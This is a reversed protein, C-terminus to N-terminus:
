SNLSLLFRHSLAWTSFGRGQVILRSPMNFCGRVMPM